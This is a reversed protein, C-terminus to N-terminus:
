PHTGDHRDQWRSDAEFLPKFAKLLGRVIPNRVYVAHQTFTFRAGLNRKIEPDTWGAVYHRFGHARAYELNHFWSVTYLNYDRSRPYSFGIYKDVSAFDISVYALAQGEVLVFGAKRCAEALERSYAYAPEGTLTAETPIDKIIMFPYRPALSKLLGRVFTEPPQGDCLLAYESVTTGVFCTEPRLFRRWSRALPLSELKRVLEPEM